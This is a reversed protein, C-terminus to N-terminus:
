FAQPDLNFSKKSLYGSNYIIPCSAILFAYIFSFIHDKLKVTYVIRTVRNFINRLRDLNYRPVVSFVEICFNAHTMLLSHGIAHKIKVAIYINLNYLKQLTLCCKDSINDIYPGFNLKRDLSVM